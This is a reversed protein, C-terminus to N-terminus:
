GRRRQDRHARALRALAGAGADGRAAMGDIVGDQDADPRNQGLKWKGELRTIEIEVGVIGRLLAELFPEPADTVRWPEPFASEERETLRTVLTRLWGVDDILRLPGYAHVVAYNWTPVVKGHEAKSPYWSPSVYANPGAFIALADVPSTTVRAHPNPRALHGRLTGYPARDADWLLPLHTAILGDGGLSVLTAFPHRRVLDALVEIRDETFHGPRYM